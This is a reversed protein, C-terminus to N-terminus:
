WIIIQAYIQRGLSPTNDKIPELFSYEEDIVNQHIKNVTKWTLAEGAFYKEQDVKMERYIENM